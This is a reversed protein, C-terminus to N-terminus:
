APIPRATPTPRGSFPYAVNVTGTTPDTHVLDIAALAAMAIQPDLELEAALRGVM